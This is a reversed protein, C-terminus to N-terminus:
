RKAASRVHMFFGHLTWILIFIAVYMLNQYNFIYDFINDYKEKSLFYRMVCYTADAALLSYILSVVSRGYIKM